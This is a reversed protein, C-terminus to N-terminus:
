SGEEPNLITTGKEGATLRGIDGSAEYRGIVVQGVGGRLAKVANRVKPIMGGTIQGDGIQAEAMKPTLSTVTEGDIVVGPVDSLFLLWAAHMAGALALALDDANINVALGDATSGPSAIVPTYGTIWLDRVILPNLGAVRATRSPSGDPGPVPSGTLLGADAGSIGVANLGAAVMTRVLRKNMLGALAMDVLDMEEDTTMRIGDVFRPEIGLRRSFDSLEAGGGHVIACPGEIEAIERAFSALISADAAARGGLKVITIPTM